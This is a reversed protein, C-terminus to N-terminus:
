GARESQAQAMQMLNELTEFRATAAADRTPVNVTRGKFPGDTLLRLAVAIAQPEGAVDVLWLHEGSKWEQPILRIRQGTNERLRRDVEDSVSAWTVVAVPARAGTEKHALEAVYFQGTVVAPLVLWEIDALSMFKHSPSRSLVVVIDGVSASVLKSVAAALQSRDLGKAPEAGPHSLGSADQGKALIGTDNVAQTETM